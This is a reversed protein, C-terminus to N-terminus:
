HRTLVRCDLARAVVLFFLLFFSPSRLNCVIKFLLCYNYVIESLSMFVYCFQLAVVFLEGGHMPVVRLQCALPLL